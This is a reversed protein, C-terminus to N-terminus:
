ITKKEFVYQLIPYSQNIKITKLNYCKVNDILFSKEQENYCEAELGNFLFLKITDYCSQSQISKFLSSFLNEWVKYYSQDM